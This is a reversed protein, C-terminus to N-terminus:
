NGIKGYYYNGFQDFLQFNKSGGKVYYSKYYATQWNNYKNLISSYGMMFMGFAQINAARIQRQRIENNYSTKAIDNNDDIWKLLLNLKNYRNQFVRREHELYEKQYNQRELSAYQLPTLVKLFRKAYIENDPTQELLAKQIGFQKIQEKTISNEWKIRKAEIIPAFKNDLEVRLSLKAREQMAFNRLLKYYRWFPQKKQLTKMFNERNEQSEFKVKNFIPEFFTRMIIDLETFIQKVAEEYESYTIFNIICEARLLSYQKEKPTIAFQDFGNRLVETCEPIIINTYEEAKENLYEMWNNDFKIYTELPILIM